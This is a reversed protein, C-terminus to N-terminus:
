MLKKRFLIKIQYRQEWINSSKWGKSPVIILRWVTVEDQTRIEIFVYMCVNFVYLEQQFRHLLHAAKGRDSTVGQENHSCPGIGLLQLSGVHFENLIGNEECEFSACFCTEM